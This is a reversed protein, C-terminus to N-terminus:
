IVEGFLCTESVSTVKVNLFKGLEFNRGKLVIPKYAFNRGIWSSKGKKFEDVLVEGEWGMWKKNQELSIEDVIKTMISSREKKKESSVQKMSAAMTKPHCSFQSINVFDPRISKILDVTKKFDDDTEDPFGTIIDTWITIEPSHSRFKHLLEEFDETSHNRNMKRLVRNSGSQVPVHIFKFVRESRFSKIIDNSIPIINVPNMMGIRLFYKGKVTNTICEILEPLCSLGKEDMGYASVDQGTIWFEKTGFKRASEIECIIRSKPYSFIRGKALSTACFSCASACGSCIPVIDITPNDRIKPLCLKVVRTHGIASVTKGEMIDSIFGSIGKIHNTSVIGIKGYNGLAEFETEPLCGTVLIKKDPYGSVIEKIRFLIKSITTSKVSCTNILIINAKEIDSVIEHGARTLLGAMIQSEASNASCGYTEIYVFASKEM